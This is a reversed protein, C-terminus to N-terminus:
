VRELTRWKEWRGYEKKYWYNLLFVVKLWPLGCFIQYVFRDIRTKTESISVANVLYYHMSFSLPCM